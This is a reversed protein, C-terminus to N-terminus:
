RRTTTDQRRKIMRRRRSAHAGAVDRSTRDGFRRPGGGLDDTPDPAIKRAARELDGSTQGNGDLRWHFWERILDHRGAPVATDFGDFAWPNSM